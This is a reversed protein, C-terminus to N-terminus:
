RRDDEGRIYEGLESADQAEIRVRKLIRIRHEAERWRLGIGTIVVNRSELRVASDSSVSRDGLNCVCNSGTMVVNTSGGPGFMVIRPGVVELVSGTSEAWSNGRLEATATGTDKDKFRLCFNTGTQLQTHAEVAWLVMVGAVVGPVRLAFSSGFFSACTGPFGPLRHM